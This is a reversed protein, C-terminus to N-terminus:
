YSIALHSSNLRTSKRDRGAPQLDPDAGGGRDEGDRDHRGAQPVDPLLEPVHDDGPDPERKRDPGRGQGRDGPPSRRQLPPRVHSIPLAARLSRSATTATP